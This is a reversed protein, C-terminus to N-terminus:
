TILAVIANLDPESNLERLDAADRIAILQRIVDSHNAERTNIAAQLDALQQRAVSLLNDSNAQAQIIAANAGVLARENILTKAGTGLINVLQKTEVGFASAIEQITIAM